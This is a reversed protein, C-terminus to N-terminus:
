AVLRERFELTLLPMASVSASCGTASSRAPRCAAAGEPGTAVLSPLPLEIDVAASFLGSDLLDGDPDILVLSV